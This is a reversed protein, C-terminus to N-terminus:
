TRKLLPPYFSLRESIQLIMKSFPAPDFRAVSFIIFVVVFYQPSSKSLFHSLMLHTFLLSTVMRNVLMAVLPIGCSCFSRMRYQSCPPEDAAIRDYRDEEGWKNFKAVDLGCTVMITLGRFPACGYMSPCYTVPLLLCIHMLFVSSFRITSTILTNRFVLPRLIVRNPPNATRPSQTLMCPTHVGMSLKCSAVNSICIISYYYYINKNSNLFYHHILILLNQLLIFVCV